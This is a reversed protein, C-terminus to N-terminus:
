PRASTKCKQAQHKTKSGALPQGTFDALVQTKNLGIAFTPLDFLADDLGQSALILQDRVDIGQDFQECGMTGLFLLRHGAQNSRLASVQPGTTSHGAPGELM